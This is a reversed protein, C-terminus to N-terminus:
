WLPTFFAHLQNPLLGPLMLLVAFAGSGDSLLSFSRLSYSETALTSHLAAAM